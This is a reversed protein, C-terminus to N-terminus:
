SWTFKLEETGWSDLGKKTVQFAEPPTRTERWTKPVVLIYKWTGGLYLPQCQGIGGAM